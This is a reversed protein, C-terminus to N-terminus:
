FCLLLGLSAGEEFFVAQRRGAWKPELQSFPALPFSPRGDTPSIWKEVFAIGPSTVTKPSCTSLLGGRDRAEEENFIM